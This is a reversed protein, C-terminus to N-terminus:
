NTPATPQTGTVDYVCTVGNWTSSEYCAL